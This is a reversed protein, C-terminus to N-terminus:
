EPRYVHRVLFTVRIVPHPPLRYTWAAAAFAHVLGETYGRGVGAEFGLSSIGDLKPTRAARCPWPATRLECWGRWGHVRWGRANAERWDTRRAHPRCGLGKAVLCLRIEALTCLQAAIM